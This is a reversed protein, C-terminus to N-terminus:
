REAPFLEVAAHIGRAQHVPGPSGAQGPFRIAGLLAGHPITKLTVGLETAPPGSPAATRLWVECM